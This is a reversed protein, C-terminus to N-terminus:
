VIEIDTETVRAEDIINGPPTQDSILTDVVDFGCVKVLAQRTFKTHDAVIVVREAQTIAAQSVEMEELHFDFVESKSSIGGISLIAHKYHFQRIFDIVPIWFCHNATRFWVRPKIQSVNSAKKTRM